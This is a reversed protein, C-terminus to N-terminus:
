PSTSGLQTSTQRDTAVALGPGVGTHLGALAELVSWATILSTRGGSSEDVANSFEFAYAGIPSTWRLLHRTGSAAPDAIVTVQLRDLGVTAFALAVSSNSTKPFRRAAQRASGCFVEVPHDIDESVGLAAPRKITIHEVAATDGDRRTAAALVDFGGIAGAPLLIRGTDTGAAQQGLVTDDALVACSCVIIDTHAAAALPILSRAAAATTAEVVVDSDAILARVQPEGTSSDATGILSCGPVRGQILATSVTRGIAGQGIVSVATM